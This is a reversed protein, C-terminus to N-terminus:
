RDPDTYRNSQWSRYCLPEYPSRYASSRYSRWVCGRVRCRVQRAHPVMM